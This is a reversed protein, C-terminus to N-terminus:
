ALVTEGPAGLREAIISGYDLEREDMLVHTYTDALLKASRNGVLEAIEAWSKGQAHLLSIRRHKLDHPSWLPTGTARCAKAIATRLADSKVGPFLPAALDRDDRPLLTRDIAEALEPPIERWHALRTKTTAARARVRGRAADWDGVTVKDVGATVRHASWDLWLVPLVYKSPVLRLPAEIHDATPPDIQDPEEYPLKVRKDKAPNPVVEAFDLVQALTSKTKRISERDLHDEEHLKNVLPQVDEWALEDVATTGLVPRIRNLNTTYTKVTGEAVDIRSARWRQAVETLTNASVRDPEILRLDPVRMAALESRIWAARANADAKRPFTGAYRPRAGRGGLTWRVKHRIKGKPTKYTEVWASM